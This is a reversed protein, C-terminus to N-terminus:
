RSPSPAESSRSFSQRTLFGGADSIAGGDGFSFTASKDAHGLLYVDQLPARAMEMAYLVPTM